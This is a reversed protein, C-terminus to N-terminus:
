PGAPLDGLPLQGASIRSCGIEGAGVRLVLAISAIDVQLQAHLGV